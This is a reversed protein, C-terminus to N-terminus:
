QPQSGIGASGESPKGDCKVERFIKTKGTALPLRKKFVNGGLDADYLGSIIEQAAICLRADDIGEKKLNREFIKTVYVTM